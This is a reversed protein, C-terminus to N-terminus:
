GRFKPHKFWFAEVCGMWTTIDSDDNHRDLLYTGDDSLYLAGRRVCNKDIGAITNNYACLNSATQLRVSRQKTGSKIDVVWFEGEIFYVRDLRCAYLAKSNDVPHGWCMKEIAEVKPKYEEMFKLYAMFYGSIDEPVDSRELEGWDYIELLDHVRNGRESASALIAPDVHSLDVIGLDAVIESFGPIPKKDFFYKHGEPKFTLM